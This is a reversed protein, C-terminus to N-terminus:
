VSYVDAADSTYLLCTCESSISPNSMPLIVPQQHFSGMDRVIAETFLGGRGSLGLLITPKVKKVVDELGTRDPLDKRIFQHASEHISSSDRGQGLLGDQDLLYFRSFAEEESYGADM